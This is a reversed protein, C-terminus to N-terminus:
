KNLANYNSNTKKSYATYRGSTSITFDTKAKNDLWRIAAKKGGSPSHHSVAIFKVLDDKNTKYCSSFMNLQTNNLSKVLNALNNASFLYAAKHHDNGKLYLVSGPIASEDLAENFKSAGRKEGNKNYIAYQTFQYLGYSLYKDGLAPILEVFERGANKLLFDMFPANLEGNAAPFLETMSYALLDKGNISSLVEKLVTTKNDSLNYLKKVKGWNIENFVEKSADDAESIYDQLSMKTSTVPSYNKLQDSKIMQDISLWTSKKDKIAWMNDLVSKFNVDLTDPIIVSKRGFGLYLSYLDGLKKDALDGTPIFVEEKSESIVEKTTGVIDKYVESVRPSVAITSATLATALVGTKIWSVVRNSDLKENLKSLIKRVPKGYDSKLALYNLGAIGLGAGLALLSNTSDSNQTSSTEFGGYLLATNYALISLGKDITPEMRKKESDIKQLIKKLTM